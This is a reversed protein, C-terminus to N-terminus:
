RFGRVWELVAWTAALDEQNYKQIAVMYQRRLEEDETEVARIYQVISWDGGFEDMTRKFDARQEIVKLSYSPEPLVLSDRTVKLLDLCNKRVRDAIGGRDGYRDTYERLKTTEYHHWHVFPIDGYKRLIAESNVLFLEWGERDGQENFGALSPLYDGPRKGYVQMGWLYVKDLEDFQPPLGELDFMVWNDHPPLDPPKIRLPRGEKMARAQQLIRTSVKGV